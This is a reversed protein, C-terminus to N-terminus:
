YRFSFTLGYTVPLGAYRVTADTPFYAVNNWYYKNTVNRGWITLKWRKNEAEVGIRLDLLAYANIQLLGGVPPAVAPSVGPPTLYPLDSAFFTTQRSTYTVNGGLFANLHDSVPFSYQADGNISLKPTFPFQDGKYDAPTGYTSFNNFSQTVKTNLYAAGINIDLGRM